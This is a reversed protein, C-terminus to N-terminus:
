NNIILRQTYLGEETKIMCIYIGSILQSVNIQGKTDNVALVLSGIQNYILISQISQESNINIVDSTPNPYIQLKNKSSLYEISSIEPLLRKFLGFGCCCASWVYDGFIDITYMNRNQLGESWDTWTSGEDTTYFVGDGDTGVFMYEQYNVSCLVKYDFPTSLASWTAGNNESVCLNSNTSVFLKSDKVALHNIFWSSLGTNNQVWTIGADDSYFVGGGDTGIFLRDDKKVIAKISLNTIGSNMVSWSDGNDSSIFMGQDDTGAYIGEDTNLLCNIKSITLGENSEAWSEGQNDSIFIGDGTGAFVRLDNSLMPHIVINTLGNNAQNWTVGNDISKFVGDLTGAYMISESEILSYINGGEQMVREWQAMGTYSIMSIIVILIVKKINKMSNILEKM